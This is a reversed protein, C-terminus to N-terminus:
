LLRGITELLNSQDFGSKVLYANAGADFGREKDEQTELGTVLIVPLEHLHEDDRVSRTLEFGNMRPMEVDSVLVDFRDERLKTLADVGDVATTVRYGASVLIDHLLVRSTISDDAVLLSYVRPAQEAPSEQTQSQSAGRTIDFLDPVHLVPVLEGTSLMAAGSIARVRALPEPLSKVVVEQEWLISGVRLAILADGMNLVLAAEAGDEDQQQAPMRLLDELRHLPITRGEFPLAQRGDVAIVDEPHLMIGRTIFQLPLIYMRGSTRVLVGRTNSLSTPLVMRISTGRGEESRLSVEGGLATIHERVIALGVGRGSMDTVQGATSLGSHFVLNRIDDDRMGRAAEATLVQQEVAKSRVADVGVGRGDDRLTIEIRNDQTTAIAMVITGIAPKGRRAREVEDELGHDLCNRLLHILPDKIGELIRKDIRVDDGTVTFEARKGLERALKAVVAPLADTVMSFPMLLLHKSQELLGTSITDLIYKTAQGEEMGRLMASEIGEIRRASWQIFQRMREERAGRAPESTGHKEAVDFAALNLKQHERLWEECQELVNRLETSTRGIMYQITSLEEVQRYLADLEQISVRVTDRRGRTQAAGAIPAAGAPSSSAADGADSRLPAALDGVGNRSSQPFMREAQGNGDRRPSQTTSDGAVASLSGGAADGAPLTMRAEVSPPLQPIGALLSPPPEMADKHGNGNLPTAIFEAPLVDSTPAASGNRGQEGSAGGAQGLARLREMMEQLSPNSLPWPQEARLLEDLVDLADASTACQEATITAPNRKWLAFLGEMIQCLAEIDSRGVARAAGKLSHMERFIREVGAPLDVPGLHEIEALTKSIVAYHEDAELEFAEHLKRLFEAENM